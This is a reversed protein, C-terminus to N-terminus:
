ILSRLVGVDPPPYNLNIEDYEWQPM